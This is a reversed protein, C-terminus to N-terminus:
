RDISRDILYGIHVIICYLVKVKKVMEYCLKQRCSAATKLLFFCVVVTMTFSKIKKLFSIIISFLFSCRILQYTMWCLAAEADTLGAPVLLLLSSNLCLYSALLKSANILHSNFSFYVSYVSWITFINPLYSIYISCCNGIESHDFKWKM